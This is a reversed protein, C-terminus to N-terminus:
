SYSSIHCGRAAALFGPREGLAQYKDERISLQEKEM